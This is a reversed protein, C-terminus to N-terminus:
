LQDIIKGHGQYNNKLLNKIEVLVHVHVFVFLVVCNVGRIILCHFHLFVKIKWWFVVCWGETNKGIQRPVISHM